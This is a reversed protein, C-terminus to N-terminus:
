PGVAMSPRPTVVENLDPFQQWPLSPVQMVKNLAGLMIDSLHLLKCTVSPFLSGAGAM